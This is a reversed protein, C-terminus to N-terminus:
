GHFSFLFPAVTLQMEMMVNEELRVFDFEILSFLDNCLVMLGYILQWAANWDFLHTDINVKYVICNIYNQRM